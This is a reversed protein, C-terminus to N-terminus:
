ASIVCLYLLEKSVNHNRKKDVIRRKACMYYAEVVAKNLLKLTASRKLRMVVRNDDNWQRQRAM